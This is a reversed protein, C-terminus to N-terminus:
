GPPWSFSRGGLIHLHLHFVSQGAAAGNNVVVRYANPIGQDAAIEATKLMLHGLTSQDESQADSLKEIPKKPILLIHVPAKPNIDKFAICVEDEYVVDAPLERSIIKSFIGDDMDGRTGSMSHDRKPLM